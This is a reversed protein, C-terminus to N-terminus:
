IHSIGLGGTAIHHVSVVNFQLLQLVSYEVSNSIKITACWDAFKM